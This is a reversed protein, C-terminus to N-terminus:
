CRTQKSTTEHFSNQLTILKLGGSNLSEWEDIQFWVGASDVSCQVRCLCLTVLVVDLNTGLSM